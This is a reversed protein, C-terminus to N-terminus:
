FETDADAALGQPESQKLFEARDVPTPFVKRGRRQNDDIAQLVIQRLRPYKALIDVAFNVEREDDDLFSVHGIMGNHRYVEVRQLKDLRVCSNGNESLWDKGARLRRREMVRISVISMTVCIAGVFVGATRLGATSDPDVVAIVGAITIWNFVALIVARRRWKERPAMQRGFITPSLEPTPPPLFPVVYSGQNSPRRWLRLTQMAIV